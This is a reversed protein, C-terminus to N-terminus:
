TATTMPLEIIRSVPSPGEGNPTSRLCISWYAHVLKEHGLSSESQQDERQERVLGADPQATPLVVPIVLSLVSVSMDPRDVRVIGHGDFLRQRVAPGLIETRP